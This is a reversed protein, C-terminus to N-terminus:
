LAQQNGVELQYFDYHIQSDSMELMHLDIIATVGKDGELTWDVLRNARRRMM